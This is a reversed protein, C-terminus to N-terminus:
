PHPVPGFFRLYDQYICRNMVVQMGAARARLAAPINVVDLQLWIVPLKLTLCEDVIKDVYEPARFVDVLDIKDPVGELTAYAKEGLVSDVAPRIPVIRYGFHQMHLAVRHSPRNPRPSLGIMAITHVRVLLERIVEDPPNQFSNM